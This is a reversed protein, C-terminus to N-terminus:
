DASRLLAKSSDSTFSAPDKELQNRLGRVTKLFPHFAERTPQSAEHIRAFTEKLEQRRQEARRRIEPDSIRNLNAQWQEFYEKGRTRMAHAQARVKLSDVSLRHVDQALQEFLIAPCPNTLAEVQDVSHLTSRVAALSERVIQRCETINDAPTTDQQATHKAACGVLSSLVAALFQLYSFRLKM